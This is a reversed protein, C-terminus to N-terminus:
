RWRIRIKLIFAVTGGNEGYPETVHVLFVKLKVCLLCNKSGYVNELKEISYGCTGNCTPLSQTKMWVEDSILRKVGLSGCTPRVAGSVELRQM